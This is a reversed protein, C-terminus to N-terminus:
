SEPEDDPLTTGNGGDKDDSGVIGKYNLQIFESNSSAGRIVNVVYFVGQAEEGHGALIIDNTVIDSVYDTRVSNKFVSRISSATANAYNFQNYRVFKTQTNSRWTINGSDDPMDIYIDAAEPTPSDALSFPVSVDALSLADPLGTGPMFLLIGTKEAMTMSRNMVTISRKVDAQNGRNDTAEFTLTIECSESELEPATFAFQFSYNKKDCPSDLLVNLGSVPDFSTVKYSAVYDHSTSLSVEYLAKEGAYLSVATDKGPSVFVAVDSLEQEQDDCRVFLMLALASLLSIIVFRKMQSSSFLLPPRAAM